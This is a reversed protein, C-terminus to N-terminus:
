SQYIVCCTSDSCAERAGAFRQTCFETMQSGDMRVIRVFSCPLYTAEEVTTCYHTSRSKRAHYVFRIAGLSGCHVLMGDVYRLGNRFLFHGRTAVM